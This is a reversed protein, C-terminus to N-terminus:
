SLKTTDQEIEYKPLQTYDLVNAMAKVRELLREFTHKSTLFEQEVKEDQVV